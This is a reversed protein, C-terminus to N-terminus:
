PNRAEDLLPWTDVVTYVSREGSTDSRVLCFELPRWEVSPVSQLSPEAAVNRALTVHPRLRKPNQALGLGALDRHLQAWLQELAPAIRRAAAVVVEPKPWYEFADFQLECRVPRQASGIARVHAARAGDVAGVFAVTLHYNEPAVARAEAGLGLSATLAALRARL